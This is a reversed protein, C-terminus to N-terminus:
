ASRQLAQSIDPFLGPSGWPDRAESLHREKLQATWQAEWTARGGRVGRSAGRARGGARKRALTPM